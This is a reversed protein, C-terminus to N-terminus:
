KIWLLKANVSFLNIGQKGFILRRLTFKPLISLVVIYLNVFLTVLPKINGYSDTIVLCEIFM